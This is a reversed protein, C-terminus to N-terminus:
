PSSLAFVGFRGGKRAKDREGGGRERKVRERQREMERGGLLAWVKIV